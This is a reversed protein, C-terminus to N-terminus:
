CPRYNNNIETLKMCYQGVKPANKNPINALIVNGVRRIDLQCNFCVRASKKYEELCQPTCFQRIDSGFRVCYKGLSNWSVAKGCTCCKSGVDM